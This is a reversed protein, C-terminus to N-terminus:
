SVLFYVLPAALVLSDVRDLVGGHGPILSGSDKVGRDRKIASVILDGFTGAVAVAAGAVAGWVWTHTTLLVGLGSGLASAVVIGGLFGAITKNPSVSPALKRRGLAKGSLFQAVDGGQAVIVLWLLLGSGGAPAADTAEIALLGALHALGAGLAVAMATAGLHAVFGDTRGNLVLLGATSVAAAMVALPVLDTWGVAAVGYAVITASTAIPLVVPRIMRGLEWVAAVGVAALFAFTVGPHLVLALLFVGAMVWWSRVRTRVEDLALWPAVKGVVSTTASAVVLTGLVGGMTWRLPVALAEM